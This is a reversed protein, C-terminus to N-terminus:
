ARIMASPHLSPAAMIQWFQHEFRGVKARAAGATGRISARDDLFGLSGHGEIGCALALDIGRKSIAVFGGEVPQGEAQQQRRPIRRVIVRRQTRPWTALRRPRTWRGQAIMCENGRSGRITERRIRKLNM